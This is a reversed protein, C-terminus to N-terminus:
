YRAWLVLSFMVVVIIAGTALGLAMLFYALSKGSGTPLVAAADKGSLLRQLTAAQGPRFKEFGTAKKLYDEPEDRLHQSFDKEAHDANNM